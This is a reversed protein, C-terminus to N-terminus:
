RSNMGAATAQLNIIIYISASCSSTMCLGVAHKLRIGFASPYGDYIIHIYHMKKHRKGTKRTFSQSPTYVYTMVYYLLLIVYFKLPGGSVNGGTCLMGVYIYIYLTYTYRSTKSPIIPLLAHENLGARHTDYLLLLLIHVLGHSRHKYVYYLIYVIIYSRLVITGRAM